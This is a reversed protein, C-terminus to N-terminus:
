GARVEAASRGLSLLGASPVCPNCGRRECRTRQLAQNLWVDIM